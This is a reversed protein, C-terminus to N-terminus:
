HVLNGSGRIMIASEHGQSGLSNQTCIHAILVKEGKGPRKALVPTHGDDVGSVPRNFPSDHQRARSKGTLARPAKLIPEMQAFRSAGATILVAAETASPAQCWTTRDPDQVLCTM